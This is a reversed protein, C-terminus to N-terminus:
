NASHSQDDYEAQACTVAHGATARIRCDACAYTGDATCYQGVAAGKACDATCCNAADDTVLCAFASQAAPGVRKNRVFNDADQQLDQQLFLLGRGTEM